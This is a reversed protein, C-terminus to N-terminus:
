QGVEVVNDKSAAEFIDGAGAVNLRRIMEAEPIYQPHSQPLQHENGFLGDPGAGIIAYRATRLEPRELPNGAMWPVAFHNRYDNLQTQSPNAPMTPPNGARPEWRYYRFAVGNADRLEIRGVAANQPYLTTSGSGVAFFPQFTRGTHEFTGDRRPTRFGPGKVGDIASQGDPGTGGRDEDLVGILYYGLTYISFREDPQAADPLYRFFEVHDGLTFIRPARPSPNAPVPDGSRNLTPPNGPSFSNIEDRVLPPYFGFEQQFQDIGQKLSLVATRHATDKAGRTALRVAGILLGMVLFVILVSFMLEFLTMGRRCRPAPAERGSTSKQMAGITPHTSM